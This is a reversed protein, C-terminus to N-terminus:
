GSSLRPLRVAVELGKPIVNVAHITGGHMRAIRRCLALGLGMAGPRTSHFPEFIGGLRAAPVGPGDDRVAVLVSDGLSQTRVDVRGRPGAAETANQVLNLLLQHFADPDLPVSGANPDPDFTLDSASALAEVCVHVAANVDVPRIRSPPPPSDQLTAYLLLRRLATGPPGAKGEREAALAQGLRELVRTEPGGAAAMRELSASVLQEAEPAHEPMRAELRRGSTAAAALLPLLLGLAAAGALLATPGPGLRAGSGAALWVAGAAGAPALAGLATFLVM